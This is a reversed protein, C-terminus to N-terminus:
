WSPSLLFRKREKPRTDRPTGQPLKKVRVILLDAEKSPDETEKLLVDCEDRKWEPLSRFLHQSDLTTSRDYLTTESILLNDEAFVDMLDEIFLIQFTKHQAAEGFVRGFAAQLEENPDMFLDDVIEELFKWEFSIKSLCTGYIFATDVDDQESVELAWSCFELFFMGVASFFLSFGFLIIDTNKM